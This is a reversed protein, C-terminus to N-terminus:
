VRGRWVSSDRGGYLVAVVEVAKGTFRFYVVYPFRHLRAARVGRDGKGYSEPGFAVQVLTANLERLFRNGLRAQRGEYWRCAEAIDDSVEKRFRLPYKV